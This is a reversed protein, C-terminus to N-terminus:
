HVSTRFFRVRAPDFAARTIRLGTLHVHRYAGPSYLHRRGREHSWEAPNEAVLM